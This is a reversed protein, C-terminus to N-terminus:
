IQSFYSKTYYDFYSVRLYNTKQYFENVM